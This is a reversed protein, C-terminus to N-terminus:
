RCTKFYVILVINPDRFHSPGCHSLVQLLLLLLLPKERQHVFLYFLNSVRSLAVAVLIRYRFTDKKANLGCNKVLPEFHRKLFHQAMILTCFYM